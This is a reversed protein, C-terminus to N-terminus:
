TPHRTEERYKLRLREVDELCFAKDKYVNLLRLLDNADMLCMEFGHDEPIPASAEEIADKTFCSTTFLTASPCGERLQVGRLERVLSVGVKAKYRKIEVISQEEDNNLLVLDYGGDRTTKTVEVGCGYRRFVDAVLLECRRPSLSYVHKYHYKLFSGLEAFSLKASSLPFARLVTDSESATYFDGDEYREDQTVWGCFKCGCGWAFYKGGTADFEFRSEEGCYHCRIRKLPREEIHDATTVPPEGDTWSRVMRWVFIPIEQM